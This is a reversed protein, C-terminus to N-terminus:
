LRRALWWPWYPEWTQHCLFGGLIPALRLTASGLDLGLHAPFPRMIIAPGHEACQACGHAYRAPNTARTSESAISAVDVLMTSPPRQYNSQYVLYISTANSKSKRPVLVALQGLGFDSWTAAHNGPNHLGSSWIPRRTVSAGPTTRYSRILFLNSCRAKTYCTVMEDM